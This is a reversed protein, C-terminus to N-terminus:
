ERPLLFKSGNHSLVVGEPTIAEVKVGDAVMQGETVKKMNILAFRAQPKPDYVHMDLRLEPLNAGNATALDQYLMLGSSTGRKVHGKFLPSGAEEAPAYDDPNASGADPPLNGAHGLAGGNAALTPENQNRDPLNRAPPQGQPESSQTEASQLDAGSRSMAPQPAPARTQTQAQTPSPAQVPVPVPASAVAASVPQTAIAPPPTSQATTAEDTKSSHRLLLWGVIVMNIVLLVVIAIAWVPFGAKPPAVKVEFLAPGTQRQRDNESKKLADLIFSM